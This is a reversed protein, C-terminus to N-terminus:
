AILSSLSLHGPSRPLGPSGPSRSHAPFTRTPTSPMPRATTFLMKPSRPPSTIMGLRLPTLTSAHNHYDFYSIEPPPTHYSARRAAADSSSVQSKERLPSGLSKSTSVKVRVDTSASSRTLRPRSASCQCNKKEPEPAWFTSQTDVPTRLISPFMPSDIDCVPSDDWSLSPLSPLTGYASEDDSEAESNAGTSMTRM